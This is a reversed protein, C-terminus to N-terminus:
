RILDITTLETTKSPSYGFKKKFERSFHSIDEFGLELYIESVPKQSFLMWCRAYNLRQDKIWKHPSIGLRKVFLRHFSSTSLGYKSALEELTINISIHEYLFVKFDDYDSNSISPDANEFIPRVLQETLSALHELDGHSLLTKIALHEELIEMLERTTKATLKFLPCIDQSNSFYPSISKNALVVHDVFFIISEFDNSASDLTKQAKYNSYSSIFFCDGPQARFNDENSYLDINGRKLFVIVNVPLFFSTEDTNDTISKAAIPLGNFEIIELQRKNKGATPKVM